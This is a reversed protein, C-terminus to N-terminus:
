LHSVDERSAENPSVFSVYHKGDQDWEKPALISRIIEQATKKGNGGGQTGMAKLRELEEKSSVEVPPQEYEVLSDIHKPISM